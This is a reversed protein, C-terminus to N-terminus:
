QLVGKTAYFKLVDKNAIIVKSNYGNILKLGSITKLRSLAVYAQGPAFIESMSICASDLSLGQSKHITIAYALVLPIQNRIYTGDPEELKIDTRTIAHKGCKDFEVEINESDISKVTGMAGNCLGSSINLNHVLMVRAGIKLVLKSLVRTSEDLKKRVDDGTPKDIKGKAEFKDVAEFKKIKTRLKKFKEDNRKNCDDNKPYLFIDDSDYNKPVFNDKFVKSFSQVNRGFRIRNLVNAFFKDDQRKIETLNVIKFDDFFKSNFVFSRKLCCDQEVQTKKCKCVELYECKEGRKVVPPLQFFDGIAIIQVGGFLKENQRVGQLVKNIYEFLYVNVMSIEDIAIMKTKQLTNKLIEKQEDNLISSIIANPHMKGTGIGCFSHITMGNINVAAVGTSATVALDEGFEKKLKNLIYSKGVGAGGTIFVNEGKKILSLIGNYKRDQPEFDDYALTELFENEKDLLENKIKLDKIEDNKKEILRISENKVAELKENAVRCDSKYNLIERTLKVKENRHEEKISNIEQELKKNADHVDQLKLLGKLIEPYKVYRDYVKTFFSSLLLLIFVTVVSIIIYANDM